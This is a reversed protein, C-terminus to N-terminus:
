ICCEDISDARSFSPTSIRYFITEAHQTANLWTSCINSTSHITLEFFFPMNTFNLTISSATTQKKNDEKTHL